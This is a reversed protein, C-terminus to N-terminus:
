LRSIKLTDICSNLLDNVSLQLRPHVYDPAIEKLPVLVFKRDQMFPHPVKLQENDILENDISIIDIDITRPGWKIERKRGLLNEIEQLKSLLTEPKFSTELLLVINYFYDQETLGWPEAEYLSSIAKLAGLDAIEDIAKTLNEERDGLNSGLSLYAQYTM